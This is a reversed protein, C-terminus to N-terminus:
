AAGLAAGALVARTETSRNGPNEDTTEDVPTERYRTCKLLGTVFRSRTEIGFPDFGNARPRALAGGSETHDLAM